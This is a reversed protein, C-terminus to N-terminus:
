CCGGGSQQQPQEDDVVIVSKSKTMTRNNKGGNEASKEIMSKSLDLFMEDIGKSLKASTHFHKAGVSKAYAEADSVAVHRDKELDIKNGAICLSIDNGLMKRLEKVWNKVKQFSDEDTIDYVLIAGNSDRYYIPGLAHFREQGATDWIALNVRKGGINLKKNLFSAQLTTLHKDNFKNEVYRLVLSTKGVCGEGLLVVKFSNRGGANVGAM